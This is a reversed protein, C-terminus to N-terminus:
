RGEGCATPLSTTFSLVTLTSKTWMRPILTASMIAFLQIDKRSLTRTLSASDGIQIDNFPKNRIMDM